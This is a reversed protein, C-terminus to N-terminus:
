LRSLDHLFESSDVWGKISDCPPHRWVLAWLFVRGLLLEKGELWVTAESHIQYCNQKEIDGLLYIRKACSHGSLDPCPFDFTSSRSHFIHLRSFTFSSFARDFIGSWEFLLNKSLIWLSKILQKGFHSAKLTLTGGTHSLFLFKDIHPDLQSYPLKQKYFARSEGVRTSKCSTNYHCWWRSKKFVGSGLSTPSLVTGDLLSKSFYLSKSYIPFIKHTCHIGLPFM